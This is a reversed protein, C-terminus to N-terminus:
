NTGGVRGETGKAKRAMGLSVFGRARLRSMDVTLLGWAAARDMMAKGRTKEPKRGSGGHKTCAVRAKELKERSMATYKGCIVMCNPIRAGAIGPTAPEPVGV